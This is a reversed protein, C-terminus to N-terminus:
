WRMAGRGAQDPREAVWAVGRRPEYAGVSPALVTGAARCLPPQRRVQRAVLAHGLRRVQYSMPAQALARVSVPVLARVLIVVVFEVKAVHLQVQVTLSATVAALLGPAITAHAQAMVPPQPSLRM